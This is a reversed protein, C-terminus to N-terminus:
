NTKPPKAGSVNSKSLSGEDPQGSEVEGGGKAWVSYKFM